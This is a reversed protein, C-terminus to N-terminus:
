IRACEGSGELLLDLGHEVEDLIYEMSEEVAKKSGPLNIILTQKRIGCIGRSLMARKTITLSYARIAEAIGPVNRDIVALTAEPTCDRISLGTGGTTVILNINRDDVYEIMKDSLLNKEDPLIVKEYVVYGARKLIAVLAEGSTDEREKAFGKDSAVIVAATRLPKRNDSLSM